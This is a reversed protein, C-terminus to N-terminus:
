EYNDREWKAVTAADSRMEGANNAQWVTGSEVDLATLWGGGFCFTDICLLHGADLIEGTLQPTHGVVARKGSVHPAPPRANIHDWFLVNDPTEELALAPSYGAHVFLHTDTQHHRRCGRVFDLHEAPVGDLMTGYSFLTEAGGYALWFPMEIPDELARLLMAEHNGYLPILTCRKSLEILREIVQRSAPGRDVYDGLTVVTDTSQPDIASLLAALARDCGHIDGVAITRNPM